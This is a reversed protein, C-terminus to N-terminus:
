ATRLAAAHLSQLRFALVLLLIGFVFAYAGLWWAIVVAGAVPALFILVGFIVSAIGALVLVWEGTVHRRLRFAAAIELVGTVIAWAAVLYVLVALTLIPMSLAVLGAIIGVIGEILFAGWRGHGHAARIASIIAVVGDVLAYAGFLIVIVALTIGPVAFTLIGFLIALVGRLALTWWHIGFLTPM